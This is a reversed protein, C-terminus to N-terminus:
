PAARIRAELLDIDRVMRLAVEGNVERERAARFIEAREAKLGAIRLRREIAMTRRAMAEAESSQLRGDIRRRYQDMIRASADTYLDADAQGKALLHQEAEIAQIAAESAAARVRQIETDHSPEPPLELHELLRPLGVSAVIM